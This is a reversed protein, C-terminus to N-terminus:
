TLRHKIERASRYFFSVNVVYVFILSNLMQDTIKSIDFTLSFVRKKIHHKIIFYKM